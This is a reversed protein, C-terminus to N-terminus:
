SSSNSYIDNANAGKFLEVNLYPDLNYIEVAINKASDRIITLDNIQRDHYQAEHQASPVPIHGEHRAYGQNYNLHLGVVYIPSCGMIISFALMHVAVTDGSGYHKEYGTYYQLKEQITVQSGFHRQDYALYDTEINEKVWKESTTDVSNSYLVRLRNKYCNIQNKWSKMNIVNNALIWYHPIIGYFNMWENCGFLIFKNKLYDLNSSIVNLSPGHALILAPTNKHVNIIDDFGLQM